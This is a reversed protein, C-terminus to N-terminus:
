RRPEPQRQAELLARAHEMRERGEALAARAREISAGSRRATLAQNAQDYIELAREYEAKGRPDADPMEVDLDLDRIQDGLAVVEDRFADREDALLEAQERRGRRFRLLMWGAVLVFPLAVAVAVILVALRIGDAVKKTADDVGPVGVSRQPAAAGEDASPGPDRRAIGRIGASLQRYLGKGENQDFGARLADTAPGVQPYSTILYAQAGAVVILSGKGRLEHDIGNALERMGGADSAESDRVVAVKVRGIDQRAIQLRLRGRQRVSLTPKAGHQVVVPDRALARAVTAPSAHATGGTLLVAVVAGLAIRKM